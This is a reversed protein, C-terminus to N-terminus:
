KNLKRQYKAGLLIMEYVLDRIIKPTITGKINEPHKKLFSEASKLAFEEITEM